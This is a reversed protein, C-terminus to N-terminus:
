TIQEFYFLDSAILRCKPYSLDAFEVQEPQEVGMSAGRTFGYSAGGFLYIRGDLTTFGFSVRPSPVFGKLSRTIEMWSMTALEFRHM